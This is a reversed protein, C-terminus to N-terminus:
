KKQDQLRGCYERIVEEQGSNKEISGNRESRVKMIAEEASLHRTACLYAALVTGTRGKGAACHVLTVKGQKSNELIFNVGEDLEAMTPATHNKIPIDKYSSVKGLWAPNLPVETLSLISRIGRERELWEVEKKSTPAASGYLHDDIPSVNMPHGFLLGYLKRMVDGPELLLLGEIKDV